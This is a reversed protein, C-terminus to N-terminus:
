QLELVRRSHCGKDGLGLGMHAITTEMVPLQLKPEIKVDNYVSPIANHVDHNSVM